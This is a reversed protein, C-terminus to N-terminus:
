VAASRDLDRAARGALPQRSPSTPTIADLMVPLGRGESNVHPCLPTSLANLPSSVFRFIPTQPATSRNHFNDM